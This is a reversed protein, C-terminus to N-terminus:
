VSVLTLFITAWNCGKQIISHRHQHMFLAGNIYHSLLTLLLLLSLSFWNRFLHSWLCPCFKWHKTYHWYYPLVHIQMWREKLRSSRESAPELASPSFSGWPNAQGKWQQRVWSPLQRGSNQKKHIIQVWVPTWGSQGDTKKELMKHNLNEKPSLSM